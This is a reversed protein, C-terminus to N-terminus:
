AEISVSPGAAVLAKGEDNDTYKEFNKVFLSSFSMQSYVSARIGMADLFSIINRMFGQTQCHQSLYLTDM